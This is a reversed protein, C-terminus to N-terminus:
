YRSSGPNDPHLDPFYRVVPLTIHMHVEHVILAICRLMEKRDNEDEVKWVAIDLQALAQELGKSAGNIEKAVERKM